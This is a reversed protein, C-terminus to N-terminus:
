VNKAIIMHRLVDETIRMVRDLEAIVASSSSFNVLVYIGEEVDQISYALRKKGWIDVKSVTGHKEIIENFKDVIAQLAEDEMPKVVYMVEFDKMTGGNHLTKIMSKATSGNM